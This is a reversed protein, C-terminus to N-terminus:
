ISLSSAFEKAQTLDKENPKGKNMGGFVELFGNTNWGKCNFEGLIGCKKSILVDRLQIHPDPEMKFKVCAARSVGSTSFIFVKKNINEPLNAAIDLISKHHRNDYIGSGFGILEYKELNEKQFQNPGIISANLISSMAMAIKQTNKKHFSVLVLLIKSDVNNKVDVHVTDNWSASSIADQQRELAFLPKTVMIGMLSALCSLAKRRGLLKGM